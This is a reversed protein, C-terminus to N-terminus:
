RFEPKSQLETPKVTPGPKNGSIFILRDRAGLLRDAFRELEV